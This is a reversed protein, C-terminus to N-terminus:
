RAHVAPDVGTIRTVEGHIPEDLIEVILESADLWSGPDIWCDSRRTFGLRRDAMRRDIQFMRPDSLGRRRSVDRRDRELRRRLEDLTAPLPTLRFGRGSCTHCMPLWRQRFEVMQLHDLRREDCIACRAGLGVPRAQSWRLYCVACRGRRLTPSKAGCAQCTKNSNHRHLM